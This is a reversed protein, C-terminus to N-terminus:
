LFAFALKVADRNKRKIESPVHCKPGRRSKAGIVIVAAIQTKAVGGIGIGAAPSVGVNRAVIERYTPGREQKSTSGLPFSPSM